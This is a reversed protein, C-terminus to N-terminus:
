QGVKGTILFCNRNNLIGCYIYIIEGVIDPIEILNEFLMAQVRHVIRM